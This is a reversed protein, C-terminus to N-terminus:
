FGYLSYDSRATFLAAYDDLTDIIAETVAESSPMDTPDAVRAESCFDSLFTPEGNVSGGLVFLINGDSVYVAVSIDGTINQLAEDLQEVEDDNPATEILADYFDSELLAAAFDQVSVHVKLFLSNKSLKYEDDSLDDIDVNIKRLLDDLGDAIDDLVDQDYEDLTIQAGGFMNLEVNELDSPEEMDELEDVGEFRVFITAEEVNDIDIGIDLGTMRIYPMIDTYKDEITDHDLVVYIGDRFYDDDPDTVDEMEDQDVEEYGLEELANVAEEGTISKVKSCGAVGAMLSLALVSAVAKKMKM